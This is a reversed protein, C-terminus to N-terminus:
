FEMEPLFGKLDREPDAGQPALPDDFESMVISDAQLRYLDEILGDETEFVVELKGIVELTDYVYRVGESDPTTVRLLENIRPPAGFCCGWLSRVLHFNTIGEFDVDPLMFGKMVVYQGNMAKVHPPFPDSKSEDFLWGGLMDTNLPIPDQKTGHHALAERIDRVYDEPEVQSVILKTDIDLEAWEPHPHLTDSTASEPAAENKAAAMPDAAAKPDAAARPDASPAGAAEPQAAQESGSAKPDAPSDGCAFIAAAFLPLLALKLSL